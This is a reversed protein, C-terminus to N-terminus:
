RPQWDSSRIAGSASEAVVSELLYTNSRQCAESLAIAADRSRRLDRRSASRPKFGQAALRQFEAETM